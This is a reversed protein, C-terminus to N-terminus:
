LLGGFRLLRVTVVWHVIDIGVGGYNILPSNIGRVLPSYSYSEINAGDPHVVSVPIGELYALHTYLYRHYSWLFVFFGKCVKGITTFGMQSSIPRGISVVHNQLRGFSQFLESPRNRYSWHSQTHNSSLGVHHMTRGWDHRIDCHREINWCWLSSSALWPEM